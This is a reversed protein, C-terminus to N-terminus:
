VEVGDLNEREIGHHNLGTRCRGTNNFVSRIDDRPIGPDRSGAPDRGSVFSQDRPVGQKERVKVKVRRAASYTRRLELPIAM